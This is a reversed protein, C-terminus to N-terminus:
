KGRAERERRAARTQAARVTEGEASADRIAIEIADRVQDTEGTEAALGLMGALDANQPERKHTAYWREAALITELTVRYQCKSGDGKIEATRRAHRLNGAEDKTRDQGYRSLSAALRVTAGTLAHNQSVIRKAADSGIRMGVREDVGTHKFTEGRKTTYTM